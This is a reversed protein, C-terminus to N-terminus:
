GHTEGFGVPDNQLSYRGERLTPAWESEIAKNSLNSSGEPAFRKGDVAIRFLGASIRSRAANV